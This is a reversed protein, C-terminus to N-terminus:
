FEGGGAASLFLDRTADNREDSIDLRHSEHAATAWDRHRVAATFNVFVDRLTGYGVNYIMDQLAVRAASPYSGVENFLAHLQRFSEDVTSKLRADIHEDPLYLATYGEYWGATHRGTLSSINRWEQRKQEDTAPNQNFDLLPLAVAEDESSVKFGVGITVNGKSDKYLFNEVGEQERLSNEIAQQERNTFGESKDQLPLKVEVTASAHSGGDASFSVTAHAKVTHADTRQFTVLYPAGMRNPMSISFGGGVYAGSESTDVFNGDADTVKLMYTKTFMVEGSYLVIASVQVNDRSPDSLNRHNIVGFTVSIQSDVMMNVNATGKDLGFTGMVSSPYNNTGFVDFSLQQAGVGVEVGNAGGACAFSAGCINEDESKISVTAIQM